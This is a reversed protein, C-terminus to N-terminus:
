EGDISFLCIIRGIVWASDALRGHGSAPPPEPDTGDNNVIIKMKFILIAGPVPYNPPDASGRGQLRGDTGIGGPKKAPCPGDAMTAAPRPAGGPPSMSGVRGRRTAGM